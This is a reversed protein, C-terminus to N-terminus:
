KLLHNPWDPNSYFNTLIGSHLNECQVQVDGNQNNSQIETLEECYPVIFFSEFIERVQSTSMGNLLGVGFISGELENNPNSNNTYILSKFLSDVNDWMSVIADDSGLSILKFRETDLAGIEGWNTVGWNKIQGDPLFGGMSNIKAMKRAIDSVTNLNRELIELDREDKVRSGLVWDDRDLSMFDRRTVTTAIFHKGKLAPFIAVPQFTQIGISGLWLYGNFENIAHEFNYFPKLAIKLPRELSRKTFIEGFGVIHASRQSEVTKHPFIRLGSARRVMCEYEESIVPVRQALADYHEQELRDTFLVSSARLKPSFDVEHLEGRQLRSNEM